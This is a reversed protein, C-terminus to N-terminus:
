RVASFVKRSAKGGSEGITRLSLLSHPFKSRASPVHVRSIWDKGSWWRAMFVSHLPQTRRQSNGTPFSPTSWSSAPLEASTMGLAPASKLQLVLEPEIRPEPMGSLMTGNQGDATDSVTTDFVYNWIPASIGLDSWIMRNTFGIKRGIPKEGQARRLDRVRAVVKYAEALDFSRYRRAFPVVQRETHLLAMLEHSIQEFDAAEKM